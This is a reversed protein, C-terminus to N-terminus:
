GVSALASFALILLILASWATGKLVAAGVERATSRTRFLLGASAALCLLVLGVIGWLQDPRDFGGLDFQAIFWSGLVTAITLAAITLLQIGVRPDRKLYDRM